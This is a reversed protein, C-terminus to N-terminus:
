GKAVAIGASVVMLVLVVVMLVTAGMVFFLVSAVGRVVAFVVGPSSSGGVSVGVKTIDVGVSINVEVTSITSIRGVAPKEFWMSSFM